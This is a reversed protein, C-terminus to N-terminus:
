PSKIKPPELQIEFRATNSVAKSNEDVVWVEYTGVDMLLTDIQHTFEGREDTLLQLVPYETGDPRRLHSLGYKKPTFGLGHMTVEAGLHVKGPSLTLQPTRQACSLSVLLLSSIVIGAVVKLHNEKM